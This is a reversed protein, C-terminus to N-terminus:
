KSIGSNRCHEKGQNPLYHGSVDLSISSGDTPGSPSKFLVADGDKGGTTLWLPHIVYALFSDDKKSAVPFQPNNTVLSYCLFLQGICFYFLHMLSMFHKHERFGVHSQELQTEACM